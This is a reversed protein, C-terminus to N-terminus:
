RRIGDVKFNKIHQPDYRTNKVVDEYPICHMERAAKHAVDLYGCWWLDMASEGLFILTIEKEDSESKQPVHACACWLSLFLTASCWVLLSRVILQEVKM